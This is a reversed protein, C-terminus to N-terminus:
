NKLKRYAKTLKICVSIMLVYLFTYAVINIVYTPNVLEYIVFPLLMVLLIIIPIMRNRIVKQLMDRKSDNDSFIEEDEQMESKAKRFYNYGVNSGAYEWGCDSFMQLYDERKEAKPNYDLQYIYEEAATKEYTYTCFDAKILKWGDRHMDEHFKEEEVWDAISFFKWLTKTEGSM